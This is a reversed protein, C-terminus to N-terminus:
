SILQQRMAKAVMQARNVADLKRLLTATHSNITHESVSVIIAIEKATKGQSIWRLVEREKPTLKAKSKANLFRAAFADFACTVRYCLEMHRSAEMSSGHGVLLAAYRLGNRTYVPVCIGLSFGLTAPFDDSSYHQNHWLSSLTSARATRLLASTSFTHKQDCDRILSAPLDHLVLRESFSATDSVDGLSFVAYCSLGFATCISQFIAHFDPISEATPFKAELNYARLYQGVDKGEM